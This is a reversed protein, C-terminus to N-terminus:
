IHNLLNKIVDDEQSLLEVMDKLMARNYSSNVKDVANLIANQILPKEVDHNILKKILAILELAKINNVKKADNMFPAINNSFAEIDVKSTEDSTETNEVNEVNEVKTNM